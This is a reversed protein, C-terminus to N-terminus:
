ELDALRKVSQKRKLSGLCVVHLLNNGVLTSVHEYLESVVLNYRTSFIAHHEGVKM